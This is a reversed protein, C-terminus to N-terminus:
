NVKSYLIIMYRLYYGQTWQTKSNGMGSVRWGVILRMHPALMHNLAVNCKIYHDSRKPILCTLNGSVYQLM